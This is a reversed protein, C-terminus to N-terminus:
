KVIRDYGDKQWVPIFKSEKAPELPKTEVNEAKETKVRKSYRMDFRMEQSHMMPSDIIEGRQEKIEDRLQQRAFEGEIYNKSINAGEMLVGGENYFDAKIRGNEDTVIKAGFDKGDLEVATYSMGNKTETKINVDRNKLDIEKGHDYLKFDVIDGDSDRTIEAGPKQGDIMAVEVSEGNKNTIKRLEAKDFKPTEVKIVIDDGLPRYTEIKSYNSLREVKNEEEKKRKLEDALISSQLNMIKKQYAESVREKKDKEEPHKEYYEEWFKRNEEEKKRIDELVNEVSKAGMPLRVSNYFEDINVVKGQNENVRRKLAEYEEKKRHDKAINLM